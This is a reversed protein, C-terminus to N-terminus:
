SSSPPGTFIHYNDEPCIIGNLQVYCRPPNWNADGGIWGRALGIRMILETRPPNVSLWENAEDVGFFAENDSPSFIHLLEDSTVPLNYTVGDSDRLELRLKGFDEFFRVQRRQEGFAEWHPVTLAM